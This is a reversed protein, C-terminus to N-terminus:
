LSKASATNLYDLIKKTSEATTLKDTCLEIKPKEPRESPSSLGTFEKIAGNRAKTYLGKPDRQECVDIPADVHVEIFHRRGNLNRAKQRDERYHSIMAVICIIGADAFLKAVEGVRRVNERRDRPSFTLDSCLGFQLMDGDLIYASIARSSLTRKLEMVISSKGVGSLGTLWIIFGAQNMENKKM